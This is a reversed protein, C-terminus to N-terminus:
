APCCTEINVGTGPTLIVVPLSAYGNCLTRRLPQHLPVSFSDSDSAKEITAVPGAIIHRTNSAYDSITTGNARTTLAKIRSNQEGYLIKMQLIRKRNPTDIHRELQNRRIESGSPLGNETATQGAQPSDNQWDTRVSLKRM